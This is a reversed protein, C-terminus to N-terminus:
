EAATRLPAGGANAIVEPVHAVRTDVARPVGDLKVMPATTAGRAAARESSTAGIAPPRKMYDPQGGAERFLPMVEEAMIQMNKMVMWQPMPGFVGGAGIIGGVGLKEVYEEQYIRAVTQPSGVIIYRDKILEEYSLHEHDKIGYKMRAGIFSTFSAKSSHGPPIHYHAPHRLGIHYLWTLHAKAERHAQEDTEAVYTPVAASIQKPSAEYGFENAAKRYGDFMLKAFWQPSYVTMYHYRLEACKRVTDLSGIGPIWIPPHPQQLPRPWPNVNAIHFNDGEWVFPGPQTWAKIILDHAEWFRERAFAPNIPQSLYEMGTGLVFGCIVRGGSIVDLMAVEEAVRIPNAYLPLANGIMGVPIRSTRAIINMATLNPAPQLSYATVHHENVLVGDFGFKEAAVCIELNEKYIEYALKPDCHTNSLTVWTSPIEEVPPIYPYHFTNFLYFDLRNM